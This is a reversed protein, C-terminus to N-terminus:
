AARALRAEPAVRQWITNFDAAFEAALEPAHRLLIRHDAHRLTADMTMNATGTLVMGTQPCSLYKQHMRRKTSRLEIPLGADSILRELREFGSKNIKRDLLLRIQCGRKAATILEQFEPVRNSLAYMAVNLQAGDPVSRIAELALTNLTLPAPRRKAGARLLDLQRRDNRAAHGAKERPSLAASGSFAVIAQGDVRTRPEPKADQPIPLDLAQALADIDNFDLGEAVANRLRDFLDRAREPTASLADDAWLALFEDDFARLVPQYDARNDLFLLNEYAAQGRNSWNFSGTVLMDPQGNRRLMLTKHHLMGTSHAYSYILRRREPDWDYPLDIKFRLHFNPLGLAHIGRLVTPSNAASQSWDAIVRVHIDPRARLLAVLDAAIDGDTFAFCMIQVDAASAPAQRLTDLVTRIALPLTKGGDISTFLATNM